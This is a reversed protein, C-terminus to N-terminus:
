LCIGYKNVVTNHFKKNYLNAIETGSAGQNSHKDYNLQLGCM